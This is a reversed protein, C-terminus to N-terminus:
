LSLENVLKTSPKYFSLSQKQPDLTTDMVTKRHNKVLEWNSDYTVEQLDSLIISLQLLLIKLRRKANKKLEEKNSIV